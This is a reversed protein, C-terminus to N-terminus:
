KTTSIYENIAEIFQCGGQNNHRMKNAMGNIVRQIQEEAHTDDTVPFPEGRLRSFVPCTHLEKLKTKVAKLVPVHRRMNYWDMWEVIHEAIIVKAKPVEAERKQLTEDKIKSLEDVGALTIGPLEAASREVNCPISLDIILKEGAGEVWNRLLTPQDANTAVLIIDAAHVCEAIRDAPAHNVGIEAALEAAKSETRNILTLHRTGLYDVLNRCTNRGIKGTGIVLIKRSGPNAIRERIYQIAAFSVSVTGGSLATQNKIAKSAQLVSNVLRELFPGVYQRERAFKVAQKIQGVIEYDGLIQSDLGAGVEFLHEIAATGKRVYASGLFADVTGSTQTCLLSALHASNDAFGYIETRNCTSLVFLETVHFSPALALMKEYQGTGIAFQGRKAADSKKYNIGVVFFGSIDPTKTIM